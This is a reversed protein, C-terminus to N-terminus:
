GNLSIHLGSGLEDIAKKLAPDLAMQDRVRAAAQTVATYGIGFRQAITANPIDTLGTLLYLCVRRPLNNRSRPVLIDIDAMHFHESVKALVEEFSIGQALHRSQPIERHRKIKKRIEEVFREGGLVLGDKLDKLPNDLAEIGDTVFSRYLRRSEKVDPSFRSLIWDCELWEPKRRTGVFMEYSGWKYQEPTKVLRARVPNLHIYRNVALLYQDKEIIHSGYRGQFLHGARNHRRNFYNTYTANLYHIARAINGAPTEILLHYHNQMLVYGHVVIRHKVSLMGLIDLFKQMDGSDKYIAGRENGRATIHYVAGEYEIRLPRAM